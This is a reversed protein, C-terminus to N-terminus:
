KLNIILTTTFKTGDDNITLEHQDPYMLQLRRQINALGIGSSQDKQAQNILNAVTFELHWGLIKLVIKLPNEPDTVVGHKIANEVFPILLLSAIMQQQVGHQEFSVYFTPEFRMKFLAIYSELYDIEKTLLVKGDPSDTLTYRMMDSLKLVADSLKDSVPIALAYIYNLTNYLFHPNLQSKLFALEAKKAEERLKANNKEVQFANVFGWAAGAVVIYFAGWYINDKAYQLITTDSTYNHFGFLHLYIVEEILYRCLVFVSFALLLALILQPVKDRKMFRPFVWLYCIYFEIIEVIFISLSFAIDNFSVKNKLIYSGYSYLILITWCAIHILIVRIKKM